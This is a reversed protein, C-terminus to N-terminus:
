KVRGFGRVRPDMGRIGDFQIGSGGMIAPKVGSTAFVNSRPPPSIRGDICSSCKTEAWNEIDYQGYGLIRRRSCLRGITVALLGLIMIVALVAIVPGVSSHTSHTHFNEQAITVAPPQQGLPMSMKAKPYLAESSPLSSDILQEIINRAESLTNMYQVEMAWLNQMSLVTTGMQILHEKELQKVANPDMLGAIVTSVTYDQYSDIIPGDNRVIIRGHKRLIRELHFMTSKWCNKDIGLWKLTCGSSEFARMPLEEHLRMLTAAREANAWCCCTSSGDHLHVSLDHLVSLSKELSFNSQIQGVVGCVLNEVYGVCFWLRFTLSTDAQVESRLGYYKINKELVLVHVAVVRCNFRMPKCDSCQILESIMGSSVNDLSSASPMCLTSCFKFCKDDYQENAIRISNLVIFSAPTLQLKNTVRLKLIRHFTANVGPGFGVPYAHKSLSGFISVMQDDVLVHICSINTSEQFFKMHLGDDLRECSLHANAASNCDFGHIDVVDGCVSTLNGEPFLCTFDLSGSFFGTSSIMTLIDSSDSLTEEPTMIPETHAEKNENLKVELFAKANASLHLCVDSSLEPVNGTSRLLLEVSRQYKFLNESNFELLVKEASLKCDADIKVKSKTFCLKGSGGLNQRNATRVTALCPIELSSLNGCEGENSRKLAQSSAQDIKRKKNSLREQYNETPYHALSENLWDGSIKFPLMAGDKVGLFLDWPLIIAEAFMTCCDTIVPDGKFKQLVPYKHTVCILHFRGGQLEMFENNWDVCPYFPLNRCTANGLRFSIYITLKMERAWPTHYFIHRCSLSESDPLGTHDVLDPTGEVILNYDVVEYICNSKWTSPFNPIIVDISGTADVLQLRGSYPSIKLSGLLSVGIDESHFMRRLTRSHSRGECSVLDFQSEDRLIYFNSEMQLLAKMWMVECHHLFTSIPAVLKLDACYPESDCGCSNHKCLETLIGRRAHIVSPPLHSNSFMQALGEKHKSGLIEKESLIGAFKKRFSSIILLAGTELPSFSEVTISTKLCTGLILMQTWTFKPNVFHVNRLSIIAGVRLSHPAALLQDTLVLWVEKDLEIVMGQMYVGKVVGTYAGCEGKGVIVNRLFPSWKKSLKKKLGSLRVDNGVLKAIVPHWSWSSGFFYIFLPKTFSHPHQGQALNHLVTVSEKSNCLKCECVMIRVIFGRLNNTKSDGSLCPVLSVPSTSEIPGHVSFRAKSDDAITPPPPPPPSSGSVIPFSDM